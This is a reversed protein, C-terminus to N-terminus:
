YPARKIDAGLARLREDIREYGRDLHEVGSVVSEGEASLAAILHAMGARIDTMTIEGGRLRTPGTIKASHNLTKGFFRCRSGTPCEDSVEINAGMRKLDKIYGFRDEYVTEHIISKGRAQTLLICVPQQWDTMFDPHPSTKILIPNYRDRGKFKIGEGGVEYEGGIERIKELFAGLHRAEAGRIFVEGQTALAAAAFSVVENRDPMVRVRAGYLREVGEIKVERSEERFDIEAGMEKLMGVLNFIEPEVAANKILTKGRALTATLIVSETAGVSPYPFEIEAGHIDKAEAYYSNERRLFRVGMRSLAEVHFNIPRHGIPCGGPVPIEAFGKRHLLPGIALVPIRNRRSLEPVLSSRVEETAVKYTHDGVLTIVSGISECLEKTVETELSMPVNEIICPKASLLSAVMMKPASNKSGRVEIRGSLPKGGKIIFKDAM